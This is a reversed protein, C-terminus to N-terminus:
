LRRRWLTDLRDQPEWGLIRRALDGRYRGHPADALIHLVM